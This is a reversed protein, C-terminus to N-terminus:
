RRTRRHIFSVVVQAVIPNDTFCPRGAPRTQGHRGGWSALANWETEVNAEPLCSWSLNLDIHAPKAYESETSTLQTLDYRNDNLKM